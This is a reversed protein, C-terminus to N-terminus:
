ENVSHKKSKENERTTKVSAGSRENSYPGDGVNAFFVVTKYDVESGFCLSERM